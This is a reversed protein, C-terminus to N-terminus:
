LPSFLFNFVHVSEAVGLSLADGVAYGYKALIGLFQWYSYKARFVLELLMGMFIPYGIKKLYSGM